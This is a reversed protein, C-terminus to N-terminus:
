LWVLMWEVSSDPSFDVPPVAGNHDSLGPHAGGPSDAGALRSGPARDRAPIRRRDEVASGGNPPYSSRARVPIMPISAGVADSLPRLQHFVHLCQDYITRSVSLAAGRPLTGLASGGHRPGPRVRPAVGAGAATIGAFVPCWPLRELRSGCGFAAATAERGLDGAAARGGIGRAEPCRRRLARRGASPSSGPNSNIKIPTDPARRERGMAALAPRRTNSASRRPAVM